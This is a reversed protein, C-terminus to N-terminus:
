NRSRYCFYPGCLNFEHTIIYCWSFDKDLVYLEPIGVNDIELSSYHENPLPSIENFGIGLFGNDYQIEIANDKSVKDYEKRAEDGEFCCVLKSAFLNWLFDNKKKGVHYKKLLDKSVNNAFAKIFNEVFESSTM